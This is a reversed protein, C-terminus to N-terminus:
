SPQRPLEKAAKRAQYFSLEQLDPPLRWVTYGGILGYTRVKVVPADSAPVRRSGRERDGGMLTFGSMEVRVSDPVYIDPWGWFVFGRVVVEHGDLQEHCLDINPSAFVAVSTARRIRRRARHSSSGMISVFWRRPKSDQDPKAPVPLDRVLEALEGGTRAAYARSLRTEFEVPTLRGAAAHEGLVHAAQDRDADSVRLESGGREAEGGNTLHEQV